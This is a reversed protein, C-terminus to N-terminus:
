DDDDTLKGAILWPALIILALAVVVAIVAGMAIAGIVIGARRAFAVMM